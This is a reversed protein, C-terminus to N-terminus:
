NVDSWGAGAAGGVVAWNNASIAELTISGGLTACRIADGAAPSIATPATAVVNIFPLITDTGDNPNIDMNSANGVIFTYRCGIVTSAEPLTLVDASDNVITTGCQAATLTTTTSATQTQLYGGLTNGGDGTINGNAALNGAITVAGDLQVAGDVEFTGEIYGDEGNLTVGPTGNGVTLNGTTTTVGTFTGAAPTTAGVTGNFAGGFPVNTAAVKKWDIASTDYVLVWDGTAVSSGALTPLEEVSVNAKIRNDAYAVSAAFGLATLALLSNRFTNKM